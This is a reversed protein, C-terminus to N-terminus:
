LEMELNLKASNLESLAHFDKLKKAINIGIDYIELAKKVADTKEYLKALHYYLGVYDPDKNMLVLYEDLASVLEGSNELEKALAYRVFSDSPDSELMSRLIELRNKTM